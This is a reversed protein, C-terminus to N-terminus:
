IVSFFTGELMVICLEPRPLLNKLLYHVFALLVLSLVLSSFMISKGFAKSQWIYILVWRAAVMRYRWCVITHQPRIKRRFSLPKELRHIIGIAPSWHCTTLCFLYRERHDYYPWLLWFCSTRSTASSNGVVSRRAHTTPACTLKGVWLLIIDELELHSGLFGIKVDSSFFFLM